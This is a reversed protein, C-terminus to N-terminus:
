RNREYRTSFYSGLILFVWFYIGIIIINVLPNFLVVEDYYDSGLYFVSRALDVAYTLPVARSVVLLIWPLDKIPSFVGALFFQPFIILPFLRNASQQDGALSVIFVGFAGGFIAVIAMVPLLLAFQTLSIDVGIVLGFGIIFLGQLFAVGSEGIIKGLIITWRPVPAVYFEQTLSKERDDILSIVGQTVTQFLTQAIVGVLVFTLFDYGIVEETFNASLSGGLVGVFVIPFIMSFALRSRDKIYKILDRYAIAFLVSALNKARTM